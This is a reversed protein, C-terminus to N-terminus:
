YEQTAAAAPPDAEPVLMARHDILLGDPFALDIWKELEPQHALEDYIRRPLVLERILGDPHTREFSLDLAEREGGEDQDERSRREHPRVAVLHFYHSPSLEGRLDRVIQIKMLEVVRDDLGADAIILKERLAALGFMLRRTMERGWGVVMEPANDVMTAQFSARALELWTRRWPLGHSPAITFWQRRPFDTFAMMADIMTTMGCAPCFFRHFTGDLIKQRLDPRLSIHLGNAVEVDYRKGCRCAITSPVFTSM